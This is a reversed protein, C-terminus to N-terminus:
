LTSGWGVYATRDRWTARAFRESVGEPIVWLGTREGSSRGGWARAAGSAYATFYSRVHGPPEVQHPEDHCGDGCRRAGVVDNGAAIGAVNIVTFRM